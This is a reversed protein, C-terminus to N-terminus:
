KAGGLAMWDPTSLAEDESMSRTGNRARQERCSPCWEALTKANWDPHETHVFCREDRPKPHAVVSTRAPEVPRANAVRAPPWDQEWGRANLWTSLHQVANLRVPADSRLYATWGPSVASWPPCKAAKWSKFAPLKGGRRGTKDWLEEFAAPYKPASADPEDPLDFLAAQKPPTMGLRAEIAALRAALDECRCTV